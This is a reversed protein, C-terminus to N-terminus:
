NLLILKTNQTTIQVTKLYCFQRVNIDGYKVRQKLHDARVHLNTLLFYNIPASDNCFIQMTCSVAEHARPPIRPQQVETSTCQLTPAM